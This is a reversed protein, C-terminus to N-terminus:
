PPLNSRPAPALRAEAETLLETFRQEWAAGREEPTSISLLTENVFRTMMTTVRKTADLPLANFREHLSSWRDSPVHVRLEALTALIGGCQELTTRGVWSTPRLPPPLFDKMRKHIERRTEEPLVSIRANLLELRQEMLLSEQRWEVEARAVQREMFQAVADRRRRPDSIGPLTAAAYRETRSAIQEQVEPPLAELREEFPHTEIREDPQQLREKSESRSALARLGVILSVIGIVGFVIALVATDGYMAFWGGRPRRVQLLVWEMLVPVLPLSM